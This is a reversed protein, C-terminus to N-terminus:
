RRRRERGEGDSSRKLRRRGGSAEEVSGAAAAARKTRRRQPPRRGSAWVSGCTRLARARRAGPESGRTAEVWASATLLPRAEATTYTGFARMADYEAQPWRARAMCTNSSISRRVTTDHFVASVAQASLSRWSRHAPSNASITSAPNSGSWVVNTTM